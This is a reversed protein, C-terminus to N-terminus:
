HSPRDYSELIRELETVLPPLDTAVIQWVIHLNISDYEHNLRNRLSIMQRWPVTPHMARSEPSVRTAAEGTIELLQVVALQLLRDSTLDTLSKGQM